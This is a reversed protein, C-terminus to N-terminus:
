SDCVHGRGGTCESGAFLVLFLYGILYVWFLINGAHLLEEALYYYKGDCDVTEENVRTCNLFDGSM